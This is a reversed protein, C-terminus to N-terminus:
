QAKDSTFQNIVSNLCKETANGKSENLKQIASVYPWTGYASAECSAKYERQSGDPWRTLLTYNTDFDYTAPLVPALLFLTFGTFLAKTMNAGTNMDVNENINLSLEVYPTEPRKSYIGYIVDSFYNTKQLSGLFRREFDASVNTGANNTKVDISSIFGPLKAKNTNDIRIIEDSNLPTNKLSSVSYCGSLVMLTSSVVIIKAICELISTKKM